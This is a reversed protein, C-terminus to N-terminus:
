NRGFSISILTRNFSLLGICSQRKLHLQRLHIIISIYGIAGSTETGKGFPKHFVNWYIIKFADRLTQVSEILLYASM